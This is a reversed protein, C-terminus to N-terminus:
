LFANFLISFCSLLDRQVAVSDPTLVATITPSEYGKEALIGLGMEKVSNQIMESRTEYMNLWKEKGGM